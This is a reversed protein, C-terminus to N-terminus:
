AHSIPRVMPSSTTGGWIVRAKLCPCEGFIQLKKKWNVHLKYLTPMPLILIALDLFMTLGAHTLVLPALDLCKGTNEGNWRLWAYNIPWCQFIAGLTTGIGVLVISWVLGWAVRQFTQGPFIRIYFTLIAIKVMATAVSYSAVAVYLMLFFNTIDDNSLEWMDRGMGYKALFGAVISAPMSLVWAVVVM